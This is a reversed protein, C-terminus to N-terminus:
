TFLNDKKAGKRYFRGGGWKMIDKASEKTM